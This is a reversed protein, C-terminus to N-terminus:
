LQKGRADEPLKGTRWNWYGIPSSVAWYMARRTGAPIGLERLHRSFLRNSESFTWVPKGTHLDYAVDKWGGDMHATHVGAPLRGKYMWIYDHFAAAKVHRGFTEIKEVFPLVDSLFTAWSPISAGDFEFGRPLTLTQTIGKIQWTYELVGDIVYVGNKYPHPDIHVQSFYGVISDM